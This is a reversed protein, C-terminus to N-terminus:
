PSLREITWRDEALSYVLRDHLRSERGQWFEFQTPTVRFGGWFPPLPADKPYKERLEAFKEELPSRSEIVSSQNSAWAGIQSDYPRSKFYNESEERSTKQTFGYVIVQRHIQPWFFSLCANSNAALNSAKRSEYNTYFVFGREDFGKLLVIRASPRCDTDVTALTMANADTIESRLAEDLWIGFQVFPDRDVSARTLEKGSYNRRLSALDVKNM